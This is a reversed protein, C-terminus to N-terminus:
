PLPGAKEESDAWLADLRRNLRLHRVGQVLLLFWILTFSLLSAALTLAFRTSLTPVVRTPPHLGGSWLRVSLYVLPVNCAGLLSLALSIRSGEPGAFRRVMLAVAFTLWLVLSTTLRPEWVWPKGWARQAWIPGTIMTLLGFLFCLEVSAAAVDDPSSRVLHVVSAVGAVMASLLMLWAVPVHFFFIKFDLGLGEAEGSVFFILLLSSTLLVSAAAVGAKLGFSSGKEPFPPHM